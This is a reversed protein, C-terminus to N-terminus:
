IERIRWVRIIKMYLRGKGYKRCSCCRIYQLVNQQTAFISEHLNKFWIFPSVLSSAGSGPFYTYIFEASVKEIAYARINNM